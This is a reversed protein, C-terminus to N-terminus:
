KSAYERLCKECLCDSYLQRLEASVEATLHYKTCFCETSHKCVFEKGCKPCKVVRETFSAMITDKQPM